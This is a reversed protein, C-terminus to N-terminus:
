PKEEMLRKIHAEAKLFEPDYNTSLIRDTTYRVVPVNKDFLNENVRITHGFKAIELSVTRGDGNKDFQYNAALVLDCMELLRVRTM